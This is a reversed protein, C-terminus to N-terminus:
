ENEFLVLNLRFLLVIPWRVPFMALQDLTRNHIYPTLPAVIISYLFPIVFGGIVSLVVRKM